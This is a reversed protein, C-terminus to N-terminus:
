AKAIMVSSYNWRMRMNEGCGLFNLSCRIAVEDCLIWPLDYEGEWCKVCIDVFPSTEEIGRPLVEVSHTDPSRTLVSLVPVEREHSPINSEAGLLSSNVQNEFVEAGCLQCVVLILLIRLPAINSKFQFRCGVVCFRRLNQSFFWFDFFTTYLHKSFSFVPM